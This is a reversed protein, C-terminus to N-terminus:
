FVKSQKYAMSYRALSTKLGDESVHGPPFQLSMSCEDSRKWTLGDQSSASAVCAGVPVKHRDYGLEGYWLSLTGNVSTVRAGLVTSQNSECGNSLKNESRMLMGALGYASKEAPLKEFHKGDKSLALGVASAGSAFTSISDSVTYVLVYQRGNPTKHEAVDVSEVTGSDWDATSLSLAPRETISWNLNDKSSALYIGKDSGSPGKCWSWKKWLKENKDFIPESSIVSSSNEAQAFAFPEFGGAALLLAALCSFATFNRPM